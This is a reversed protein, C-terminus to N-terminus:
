DALYCAGEFIGVGAAAVLTPLWFWPQVVVGGIAGIAGGSGAIIGTTGAASAGAATSGLMAGATAHPFAYIGAASAAAGAAGAGGTAGAAAGTATGGIYNSLRYECIESLAPSAAVFGFFILSSFWTTM